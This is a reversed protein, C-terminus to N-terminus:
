PSIKIFEPDQRLNVLDPERKMLSVTDRSAQGAVDIANKRDGLAEYTEVALLIVLENVGHLHRAADIDKRSDSENGLRAEFYACYALAPASNHSAGAECMALRWGKEYNAKADVLDKMRRQSDALNQLYILSGSDQQVAKQYYHAAQVDNGELAFKVGLNNACVATASGSPLSDCVADAKDNEGLAIYGAALSGAIDAQEQVLQHAQALQLAESYQKVAEASMGRHFYLEGLSIHPKYNDKELNIAHKYEKEAQDLLYEKTAGDEMSDLEYSDGSRLWAKVNEPQINKVREFDRHAMAYNKQFEYLLGSALRVNPSDADLAEAQRLWDESQKLFEDKQTAGYERVLAEALAAPPLASKPDQEAAKQLEPIALLFKPPEEDLYNRGKNYEAAAAQNVTEPKVTRSVNLAFAVKGTLGTVLDDLNDKSFHWTYDPKAGPKLNKLDIIYGMVLVGDNEPRLEVRLAHTASGFTQSAQEPTTVGAAAAKDPPIVSVTAKWPQIKRISQATKALIGEGRQALDGPADVPLVVLSFPAPKLWEYIKPAALAAVVLCAAVAVLVAPKRYIPKRELAALIEEDTCRQDPNERLCPLIAADWRSPLNKVLKTPAIPTTASRSSSRWRSAPTAHRRGPSPCPHSPRYRGPRFHRTAFHQPQWHSPQPLGSTLAM